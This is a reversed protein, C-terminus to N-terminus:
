SKNDQKLKLLRKDREDLFFKQWKKDLQRFVKDRTHYVPHANFTVYVGGPHIFVCDKKHWDTGFIALNHSTAIHIEHCCPCECKYAIASPDYPTPM